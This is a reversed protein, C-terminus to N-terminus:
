KYNEFPVFSINCINYDKHENGNIKQKYRLM